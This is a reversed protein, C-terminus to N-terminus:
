DRPRLSCRPASTPAPDSCRAAALPARRLRPSDRSAHRYDVTAACGPGRQWDRSEGRVRNRAKRGRYTFVYRVCTEGEDGETSDWTYLARPIESEWPTRLPSNRSFLRIGLAISAGTMASGLLVSRIHEAVKTGRRNRSAVSVITFAPRSALTGLPTSARSHDEGASRHVTEVLHSSTAVASASVDAGDSDRGSPEGTQPSGALPLLAILLLSLTGPIEGGRDTAYSLDM